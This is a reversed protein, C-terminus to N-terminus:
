TAIHHDAVGAESMKTPVPQNASGDAVSARNLKNHERESYESKSRDSAHESEDDDWKM